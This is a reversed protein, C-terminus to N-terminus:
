EFAKNFLGRIIQQEIPEQTQQQQVPQEPTTTSSTPAEETTTPAAETPQTQSSGGGLLNNLLKGGVSDGLEDQLKEQLKSGYKNKLYSQLVDSKVAKQPNDLPGYIRMSVVPIDTKKLFKISNQLDIQWDSFNVQGNAVLQASGKVTTLAVNTLPMVGESITLDQVVNQFQTSGSTLGGTLLRSFGMTYGATNNDLDEFQSGVNDLDIGHAVLGNTTLQGKGNLDYMLASMSLGSAQATLNMSAQGSLTKKTQGTLDKVFSELNLNDMKASLTVDVPKRDGGDKLSASLAVSGSNLMGNLKTLNADGNKITAAMDANSFVWPTWVIKSAKLQLDVDMGDLASLDLAERSWPSGSSAAAATKRATKKEANLLASLFVDGATLNAKINPKAKLGTVTVDGKLTAKGFQGDINNMNLADPSPMSVNAAINLPGNASSDITHPNPLLKLADSLSPHSVRINISKPVAGQFINTVDGAAAVKAGHASFTADIVGAKMDGKYTASLASAGIPQKIYEPIVVNFANALGDTDQTSVDATLNIGTYASTDAIDGKIDIKGGKVDAVSLSNIKLSQPLRVVNAKVGRLIYDGMEFRQLSVDASVDYPFTPIEPLAAAQQAGNQNSSTSGGNTENLRLTTGDVKLAVKDRPSSKQMKVAGTFSLEGFNSQAADVSLQQPTVTTVLKANTLTSPFADFASADVLKLWDALVKEVNVSLLDTEVKLQTGSYDFQGKVSGNGPIGEAFYSGKATREAVQGSLDIKGTKEGKYTLGPLKVSITGTMGAPIPNSSPLFSGAETKATVPAPSAQVSNAKEILGELDLDEKADIKFDMKPADSKYDTVGASLTMKMGDVEFNESSISAMNENFTVPGKFSIEKIPASSARGSIVSMVKSLDKAAIDVDGDFAINSLLSATGDLKMKNDDVELEVSIKAPDTQSLKGIKSDLSLPYGNVMFEGDLDYPGALNSIDLTFEDFAIDYKAGTAQDIYTLSGGDIVLENLTVPLEIDELSVAQTAVESETAGSEKAVMFNYNGTADKILIIKPDTLKIESIHPKGSLLSLPSVTVNIRGAQFFPEGELEVLRGSIGSASVSPFPLLSLSLDQDIAIDYGSTERIQTLIPDKYKKWDIFSPAALLGIILVVLVAGVIALIKGPFKM